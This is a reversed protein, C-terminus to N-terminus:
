ALQVVSTWESDEDVITLPALVYRRRQMPRFIQWPNELFARRMGFDWSFGDVRVALAVAIDNETVLHVNGICFEPTTYGTYGTNTASLSAEVGNAAAIISSGPATAIVTDTRGIAPVVGTSAYQNGVGDFVHGYWAGNHVGIQRDSVGSGPSETTGMVTAGPTITSVAATPTLLGAITWTQAGAFSPMTVYRTAATDLAKGGPTAAFLPSVFTATPKLRLDFPNSGLLIYEVGRLLPHRLDPEVAVQPQRRWRQSLFFAM